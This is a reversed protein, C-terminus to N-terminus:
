CVLYAFFNRCCIIDAAQEKSTRTRKGERITVKNHVKYDIEMEGYRGKKCKLFIHNNMKLSPTIIGDGPSVARM